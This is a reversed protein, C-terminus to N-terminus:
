FNTLNNKTKKEYFMQIACTYSTLSITTGHSSVNEHLFNFFEEKNKLSYEIVEKSLDEFPKQLKVMYYPAKAIWAKLFKPNSVDPSEKHCEKCLLVLNDKKSSGGLSHPILHCRQLEKADNWVTWSTKTSELADPKCCGWCSPETWDIAALKKEFSDLNDYEKNEIQEKLWYKAIVSKTPMGLRKTM